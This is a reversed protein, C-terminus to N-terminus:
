AFSILLQSKEVSEGQKVHIQSVVGETPSKIVNEMKMAELVLLQDGKEVAQGVEAQISHILGPMPAKVESIRGASANELGLRKLLRDLETSVEVNAKKGNVLLAVRNEARNVEVVHVSYTKGDRLIQFSREGNSVTDLDASQGNLLVADGKFEISLPENGNVNAEFM